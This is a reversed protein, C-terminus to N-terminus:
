SALFKLIKLRLVLIQIKTNVIYEYITYISIYKFEIRLM